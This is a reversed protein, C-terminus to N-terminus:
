KQQNRKKRNEFATQLEIVLKKGGQFLPTALSQEAADETYFVITATGTFIMEGDDNRTYQLSVSEPEAMKESLIEFVSDVTTDDNFGNIRVTRYKRRVDSVFPTKRRISQKELNVDLFYSKSCALLLDDSTIGLQKIRNCNMFVDINIWHEPDKETQERMFTDKELNTSSLYYEIQDKGQQMLETMTFAENAEAERELALLSGLRKM